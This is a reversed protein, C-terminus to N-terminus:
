RPFGVQQQFFAMFREKEEPSIQYMGGGAPKATPPPLPTSEKAPLSMKQLMTVLESRLGSMQDTLSHSLDDLNNYSEGDADGYMQRAAKTADQSSNSSNGQRSALKEEVRQLITTGDQFYPLKEDNHFLYFNRGKEYIKYEKILREKERCDRVGHDGGCMFCSIKRGTM